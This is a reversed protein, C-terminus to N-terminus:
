VIFHNQILDFDDSVNTTIDDWQFVDIDDNIVLNNLYMPTMDKNVYTPLSTSRQTTHIVNYEEIYSVEKMVVNPRTLENTEDIDNHKLIWYIYEIDLRSLSGGIPAKAKGYLEHDDFLTYFSSLTTLTYDNSIIKLLYKLYQILQKDPLSELKSKEM